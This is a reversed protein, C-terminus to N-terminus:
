KIFSLIWLGVAVVVMVMVVSGFTDAVLAGWRGAEKSKQEQWSALITKLCTVGAWGMVGWIVIRGAWKFIAVLIESGTSDDDVGDIDVTPFTVEQAFSVSPLLAIVALAFLLFLRSSIFHEYSAIALTWRRSLGPQLSLPNM